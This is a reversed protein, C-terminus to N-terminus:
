PWESGICSSIVLLAWMAFFNHRQVLFSALLPSAFLLPWAYFCWAVLRRTGLKRDLPPMAFLLWVAQSHLAHAAKSTLTFDYRATGLFMLAGIRSPSMSLGGLSIPTFLWLPYLATYFGGYINIFVQVLLILLVPRNLVERIPMKTDVEERRPPERLFLGCLISASCTSLGAALCPLAYPFTRFLRINTLRGDPVALIGGVSAGLALSVNEAFSSYSFAKAQTSSTSHDVFLTRIVVQSDCATQIRRSCPHHCVQRRLTWCRRPDLDDPLSDLQVRVAHHLLFRSFSHHDPSTSTRLPDCPSHDRQFGPDGDISHATATFGTRFWHFAGV